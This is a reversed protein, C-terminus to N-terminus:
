LNQTELKKKFNFSKFGDTLCKQMIVDKSHVSYYLERHDGRSGEGSSLCAVALVRVRINAM